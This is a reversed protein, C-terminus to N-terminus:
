LFTAFVSKYSKKSQYLIVEDSNIVFTPMVVPLMVAGKYGGSIYSPLLNSKASSSSRLAPLLHSGSEVKMEGRVPEAVLM